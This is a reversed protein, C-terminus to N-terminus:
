ASVHKEGKPFLWALPNYELRRLREEEDKRNRRPSDGYLMKEFARTDYKISSKPVIVWGSKIEGNTAQYIDKEARDYKNFMRNRVPRLNALASEVKDYTYCKILLHFPLKITQVCHVFFDAQERLKKWLRGCNQVNVHINSDCVHRSLAYMLPLSPYANNLIGDQYNPFFTGGDSFYFDEKEYFREKLPTIQGTIFEKYTNPAISCDKPTIRTFKGGYSINSYYHEDRKNIVYQFLLDKGTGKKGDVIVNCLRFQKVIGKAFFHSRILFWLVLLVGIIALIWVIVSFFGEM